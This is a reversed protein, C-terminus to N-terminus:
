GTPTLGGNARTPLEAALEPYFNGDPGIEALPSYGLQGALAEFGTDNLYANFSPPDIPIPVIIAEDKVDAALALPPLTPTPRPTVPAVEASSAIQCGTLLLLSLLAVYITHKM